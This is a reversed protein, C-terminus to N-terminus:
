SHLQISNIETSSLWFFFAFTEICDVDDNM